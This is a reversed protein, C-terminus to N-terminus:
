TPRGIKCGKEQVSANRNSNFHKEILVYELHLEEEHM